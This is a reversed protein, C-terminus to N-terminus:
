AVVTAPIIGAPRRREMLRGLLAPESEDVGTIEVAIEGFKPPCLATDHGGLEVRVPLYNRTLGFGRGGDVREILVRAQMGVRRRLHELRHARGLRRIEAARELALRRPVKHPMQAAPAGPRDSYPFVHLHPLRLRELTAVTEAFAADDEGPFGVIVDAGLTADPLKARLDGVLREYFALDYPRNMARLIRDSGSQLPIHLHRCFREDAAMLAVLPPTAENPEISSIRLRPLATEALIAGCLAALEDPPALDRGYFGLHIGTLVIEQHGMEALRRAAAVATERPVSRSPGRVRPVICYSCAAPCGDQVKLFARTRGHLEFAGGAPVGRAARIDGIKVRPGGAALQALLERLEDKELNGAVLDAEAFAEGGGIMPSCGLAVVKAQPNLRRARGVMQRSQRDARATVACTNVVCFDAPGPWAVIRWGDAAFTEALWAADVQNTKCGLTAFCISPM